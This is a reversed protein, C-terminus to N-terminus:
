CRCPVEIRIATGGKRRSMISFSGGLLRAREAMGSLGMGEGMASDVDFGMGNDNIELICVDDKTRIRITARSAGSHKLVNGLAEQCIRFLNHEVIEPLRKIPESDINVSIGTKMSFDHVYVELASVLGREKLMAPRLSSALKRIDEINRVLDKIAQDIRAIGNKRQAVGELSLKVLLLNQCINDHLEGAIRSREEEQACLLRMSLMRESNRIQIFRKILLCLLAFLFLSFSGLSYGTNASYYGSFNVLELVDATLLFFIGGIILPDVLAERQRQVLIYLGAFVIVQVDAMWANTFFKATKIDKGSLLLILISLLMSGGVVVKLWMKSGYGLHYSLFLLLSIPLLLYLANLCQQVLPTKLGADYFIQNDMICCLLFLLLSIGLSVHQKDRLGGLFLFAWIFFFLAVPAIVATEFILQQNKKKLGEILLKEYDGLLVRGNFIGGKGYTNLVRIALLNGSGPHLVGPPIKYIRVLSQPPEVIGPGVEGESGIKIGNLYTEDANGINGIYVGTPRFGYPLNFHIRYWGLGHEPRIGQSQWSAPLDVKQWHSDDIMPDAWSANDGASFKVPGSLDMIEVAYVHSVLFCIILILVYM